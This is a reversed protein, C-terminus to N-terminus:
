AVRTITVLTVPDTWGHVEPLLDAGGEIGLHHHIVGGEALAPNSMGTGPEGSSVGM